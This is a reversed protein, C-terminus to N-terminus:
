GVDVASSMSGSESIPEEGESEAVSSSVSRKGASVFAIALAALIPRGRV